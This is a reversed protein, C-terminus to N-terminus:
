PGGDGGPAASCNRRVERWMTQVLARLASRMVKFLEYDRDRGLTIAWVLAQVTWLDIRIEWISIMLAM